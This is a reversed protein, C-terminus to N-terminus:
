QFDDLADLFGYYAPKKSYDSNFMLPSNSSHWSLNDTIGWVIVANIDTEENYNAELVKKILLAYANKQKTFKNDGSGRTEIDLETIQCKLGKEYILKADDIVVHMDQDDDIHGQIGVGDIIGEAIADKLLTNVAYQCHSHNYDFSFDNYYLDQYDEKYMSAYKFAYYVFDDGVTSYWNNNNTRTVGNEIAENAVDIAYVLGPWRDNIAELTERIFNEM